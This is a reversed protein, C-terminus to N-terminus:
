PQSTIIRKEGWGTKGIQIISQSSPQKRSIFYCVTPNKGGDVEFFFLVKEEQGEVAFGPSQSVYVEESLYGNLFASKVDM